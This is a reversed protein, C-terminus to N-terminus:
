QQFGLPSRSLMLTRIHAWRGKSPASPNRYRHFFYWQVICFCVPKCLLVQPTLVSWLIYVQLPFATHWAGDQLAKPLPFRYFHLACRLAPFHQLDLLHLLSKGTLPPMLCPHPATSTQTCHDGKGCPLGHSCPFLIEPATSKCQFYFHRRAM